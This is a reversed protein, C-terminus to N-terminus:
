LLCFLEPSVAHRIDFIFDIMFTDLDVVLSLVCILPSM